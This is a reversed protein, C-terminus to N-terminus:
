CHTFDDSTRVNAKEEECEGNLDFFLYSSSWRWPEGVGCIPGLWIWLGQNRRFFHTSKVKRLRENRVRQKTVDLTNDLGNFVVGSTTSGEGFNDESVGIFVSQLSRVEQSNFAHVATLEDIGALFTHIRWTGPRTKARDRRSISHRQWAILIM